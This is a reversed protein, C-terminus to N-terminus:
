SLLTQLNGSATLPFQEPNLDGSPALASAGVDQVTESTISTVPAVGPQLALLDTYSRGNLPVATMQAGTIVEGMQTSVTEVHTANDSVSVSDNKEGVQLVPDILLADNVNIVVGSLKYPKFGALTVAFNYRGVPLNLFSYAGKDDSSVTQAVGTDTNTVTVTAKSVVAGSSDRVTGSINGGVGAWAVFAFCPILALFLCRLM